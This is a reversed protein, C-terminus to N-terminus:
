PSTNISATQASTITGSINLTLSTGAETPTQSFALSSVKVIRRLSELDEVFGQLNSYPGATIITFPYDGVTASSLNTSLGKANASNNGFLNYQDFSVSNLNLQRTQALNEVKALFDATSPTKPVTEDLITLQAALNSYLNKATNIDNTKILLTQNLQQARKIEDALSLIKTITPRIFVFAFFATTLLMLSLTEYLRVIPRKHFIILSRFSPHQISPTIAM